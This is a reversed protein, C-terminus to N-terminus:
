YGSLSFHMFDKQRGAIEGGWKLGIAEMASVIPGGRVLTGPTGPRWPGGLALKCKPGWQFCNKYLGNLERNIDLAAGFSHNSFQTRNGEADLPGKSMIVTYGRLSVIHEGAEVLERLAAEVKRAIRHCLYVPTIGPISILVQDERCVTCGSAEDRESPLLESYPHSITRRDVSRKLNV